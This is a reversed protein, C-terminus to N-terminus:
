WKIPTITLQADCVQSLQKAAKAAIDIDSKLILERLQVVAKLDSGSIELKLYTKHTRGSTRRAYLCIREIERPNVVIFERATSLFCYKESLWIENGLAESRDFEEEYEWVRLPDEKRIKEIKRYQGFIRPLLYILFIIGVLPFVIIMALDDVNHFGRTLVSYLIFAAAGFSILPLILCIGYVIRIAHYVRYMKRKKM